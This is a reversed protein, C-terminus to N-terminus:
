SEGPHFTRCARLRRRRLCNRHAPFQRSHLSTPFDAGRALGNEKRTPRLIKRRAGGTRGTAAFNSCLGHSRARINSVLRKATDDHENGSRRGQVQVQERHVAPNAHLHRVRNDLVPRSSCRHNRPPNIDHSRNTELASPAIHDLNSRREFARFDRSLDQARRIALHCERLVLQELRPHNGHRSDFAGRGAMKRHVSCGSARRFFSRRMGATESTAGPPTFRESPLFSSRQRAPSDEAASDGSDFPSRERSGNAM